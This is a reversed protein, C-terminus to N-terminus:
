ANKGYDNDYWRGGSSAVSQAPMRHAVTINGLEYIHRSNKDSPKVVYSIRVVPAKEFSSAPASNPKETHYSTNPSPVNVENLKPQLMTPSLVLQVRNNQASSPSIPEITTTFNKSPDESSLKNKEDSPTSREPPKTQLVTPEYNSSKHKVITKKKKALEAVAPAPPQYGSYVSGRVVVKAGDRRPQIPRKTNDEEDEETSSSSSGM